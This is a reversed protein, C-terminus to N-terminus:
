QPHKNRAVRSARSSAPRKPAAPKTAELEALRTQLQKIEAGAYEMAPLVTTEVVPPTSAMRQQALGANLQQVNRHNNNRQILLAVFAVLPGLGSLAEIVAPADDKLLVTIVPSIGGVIALWTSPSQFFPDNKFDGIPDPTPATPSATTDMETM